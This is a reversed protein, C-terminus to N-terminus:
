IQVVDSKMKLSGMNEQNFQQRTIRGLFSALVLDNSTICTVLQSITM